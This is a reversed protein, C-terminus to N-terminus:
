IKLKGCVITPIDDILEIKLPVDTEFSHAPEVGFFKEDKILRNIEYFHRYVKEAMNALLSPSEEETRDVMTAPITITGYTKIFAEDAQIALYTKGFALYWGLTLFDIIIKDMIEFPNYEIIKTGDAPYYRFKGDESLRREYKSYKTWNLCKSDLIM